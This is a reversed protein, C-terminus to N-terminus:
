TPVVQPADGVVQALKGGGHIAVAAAHGAVVQGHLEVRQGTMTQPADIAELLAKAATDHAIDPRPVHGDVREARADVGEPQLRLLHSGAQFAFWWSVFCVLLCLTASSLIRY